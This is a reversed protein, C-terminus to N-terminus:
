PRFKSRQVFKKLEKQGGWAAEASEVSRLTMNIKYYKVAVGGEQDVNSTMVGSLIFDAGTRTNIKKRTDASATAQQDALEARLQEDVEVVRVAGSNIFANSISSEFMKTDIHEGTRNTVTGVTVVPRKGQHAQQFETIWPRSLASHIMEDAVSQADTSNWDGSIDVTQNPDIRKVMTGTRCAAVSATVLALALLSQTIRM